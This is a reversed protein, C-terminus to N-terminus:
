HRHDRGDPRSFPPLNGLDSEAEVAPRKAFRFATVVLAIAVMALAIFLVTVTM